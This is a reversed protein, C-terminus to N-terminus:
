ARDQVADMPRARTLRVLEAPQIGAVHRVSGAGVWVLGRGLLTQDILVHQVARPLPFPAVAGPEFGTALEVDHASAVSAKAAGVAAAVKVPDARRDGPVLVLAPLGDCLFVLSKVIQSPECGVARAADRATTTGEPFEEIRAEARADSLFAAVREVAEPWKVAV